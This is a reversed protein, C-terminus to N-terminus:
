SDARTYERCHGRLTAKMNGSIERKNVFNTQWWDCPQCLCGIEFKRVISAYRLHKFQAGHWIDKLSQTNVNGMINVGNWDGCCAVVDGNWLIGMYGFPSTCFESNTTQSNRWFTKTVQMYRNLAPNVRVADVVRIWQKVFRKIEVDTQNSQTLNIIVRPKQANGKAKLLALINQTVTGYNGGQRIDDNVDGIGELSIVIWDIAVDVIPKIAKELLMGNTNLGVESISSSQRVQELMKLFDPHLLSEGGFNMGIRINRFDSQLQDLIRTFLSYDMFGKPRKDSYCMKCHLNCHNTPEIDMSQLKPVLHLALKPYLKLASRKINMSNTEAESM